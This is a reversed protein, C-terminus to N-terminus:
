ESVNSGLILRNRHMIALNGNDWTVWYPLRITANVCRVSHGILLSAQLFAFTLNTLSNSPSLSGEFTWFITVGFRM